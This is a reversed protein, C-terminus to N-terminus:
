LKISFDPRTIGARGREEAQKRIAQALAGQGSSLAQFDDRALVTLECPTLCRVSATRKVGSLLALEGFCDGGALEDVKVGNKLVELRGSEVIYAAEGVDGQSIVEDGPEFRKRQKRETQAPALVAIDNRFPIDLIWDILIRLNRELGPLALLSTLRSLIWAPTGSVILGGFSCLSRRGMNYSRLFRRHPTFKRSGYNQSCAWANYGIANGVAVLDPTTDFHRLTGDITPAWVSAHGKVSLDDGVELPWAVEQDNLRVTPFKFTANVVMGVPRREGTALTIGRDTLGIIEDGRFLKVGAKVLERDRQSQIQAEFDTFPAKTDEYLHVQWGHDRLVPYSVEATRLMECLEVATACSRQGSGVVAFTLLRSRETVEDALEADEVRELVRQRIHLADGISNIPHSHTVLGPVLDLNPELFLTLILQDYPLKVEKGDKRKIGVRKTRDDVYHLRGSLVRTNPVIRRIPNVVNGPQM